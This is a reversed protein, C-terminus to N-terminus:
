DVNYGQDKADNVRGMSHYRLPVNDLNPSGKPPTSKKRNPNVASRGSLSSARIKKDTEHTWRWGRGTRYGDHMSRIRNPNISPHDPNDRSAAKNFLRRMTQRYKLSWELDEKDRRQKELEEYYQEPTMLDDLVPFGFIREAIWVCVREGKPKREKKPKENPELRDFEKVLEDWERELQARDNDSMMQQEIRTAARIKQM